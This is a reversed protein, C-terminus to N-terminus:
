AHAAESAGLYAQVVRPDGTVQEPTGEAITEGLHMALVRDVFRHVAELNHEILLLTMGQERVLRLLDILADISPLDVGGFPEDLLLLRPATALARAIELRKRQGTSAWSAPADAQSELGVTRLADLAIDRARRLGVGQALAGVMANELFTMSAFPRSTQFTKVLGRRAVAEAPLGTIPRDEFLIEGSDAREQGAILNFLTSKGAGNPGIIALIEGQALDFSVSRVAQLGGFAKSALRVSLIPAM